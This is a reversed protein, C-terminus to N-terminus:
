HLLRMIGGQYLSQTHKLLKWHRFLGEILNMVQNAVQSICCAVQTQTITISSTSRHNNVTISYVLLVVTMQLNVVKTWAPMYDHTLDTNSIADHHILVLIASPSNSTM